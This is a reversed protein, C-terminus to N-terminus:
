VNAWVTMTLDQWQTQRLYLGQAKRFAKAEDFPFTYRFLPLQLNRKARHSLLRHLAVGRATNKIVRLDIFCVQYTLPSEGEIEATPNTKRGSVSCIISSEKENSLKVTWEFRNDSIPKVSSICLDIIDETITPESFDIITDLKSKVVDLNIEPLPEAESAAVAKVKELEAIEAEAKATSAAFSEKTIEGDARMEVLNELRNRLKEIKIDIETDSTKSENKSATAYKKVMEFAALVDEKRNQWIESIVTKALKWDSVMRIDCYGDTDLGNEERFSKSGYNLQNYCQYGYASDGRKNKRWKNKRFNAGCSCKMKKLWIDTSNRKGYTTIVGNNEKKIVKSKRIEDCKHWLEESVIPEFDGKVYVYSDSDLNKIRKQELYNNSRSKNYCNYGMYTANKLIRGVKGANWRYTGDAAKRHLKLLEDAVKKEGYGQSYLEFIIRVTEAQEPNITYTEGPKRDYGLINGSGYLVGNERSIRQGAKVRESVKRSEEQALTAMLSLRLEGDGDMTWINDEVFYVEVGINKLERTFNLTDVTNRAFRCVESTVILDFKGSKADEIMRLFSPRKKAQTGTIGEDIYKDIVNWNPHYKAQDSYWQMQNELASLQAEHETSVRGYFVVTRERNRDLKTYDMFSNFSKTGSMTTANSM